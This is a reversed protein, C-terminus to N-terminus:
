SCNLAKAVQCGSSYTTTENSDIDLVEVATGNAESLKAARGFLGREDEILPTLSGPSRRAREARPRKRKKQVLKELDRIIKEKKPKV